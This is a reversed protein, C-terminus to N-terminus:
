PRARVTRNREAESLLRDLENLPIRLDGRRSIAVHALEGRDCLRRVTAVSMSARRAFERVGLLGQDAPTVHRQDSM